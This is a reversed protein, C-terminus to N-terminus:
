RAVPTLTSKPLVGKGEIYWSPNANYGATALTGAISGDRALIWLEQGPKGDSWFTLMVWEGDPSWTLFQPVKYKGCDC